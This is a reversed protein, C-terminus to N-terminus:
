GGREPSDQVDEQEIPLSTEVLAPSNPQNGLDQDRLAAVAVALHLAMWTTSKTGFIRVLDFVADDHGHRERLVAFTQQLDALSETFDSFYSAMASAPDDSM